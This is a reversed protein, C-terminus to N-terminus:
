LTGSSGFGNKGRNTESLESMSPVVNLFVSPCKQIMLQAIRCTRALYLYKKDFNVMRALVMVEGRYNSDIVGNFIQLGDVELGSRGYIIGCYGPPIELYIGTPLSFPENSPCVVRDEKIRLDLCADGYRSQCPTLDYHESYIKVNVREVVEHFPESHFRDSM